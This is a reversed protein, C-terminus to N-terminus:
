GWSVIFPYKCVCLGSPNLHLLSLLVVPVFFQVFLIYTVRQYPLVPKDRIIDWGIEGWELKELEGMREIIARKSTEQLEGALIFEDLILYVQMDGTSSKTHVSSSSTPSSPTGTSWSGICRTSSRTSRRTRSRSTTSPRGRRGRGTKCCSSGSWPPPRHQHKLIPFFLPAIRACPFFHSPNKTERNKENGKGFVSFHQQAM